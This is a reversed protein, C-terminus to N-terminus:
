SLFNHEKSFHEFNEFDAFDCFKFGKDMFKEFSENSADSPRMQLHSVSGHAEEFIVVEQSDKFSVSM